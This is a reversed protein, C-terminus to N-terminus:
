FVITAGLTYTRCHPYSGQDIGMATSSGGGINVEPDYGRYKTWTVLNEASFYFTVKQMLAKRTISNPLTYAFRLNKLKLYSGDEIFRSSVPPYKDKEARPVTTYDGPNRWRMLTRDSQNRADFMGETFMRTANFVDNGYSGQFFISFEFNRWSLSNNIGYLLKPQACGIIQRDEDASLDEEYVIMGNVKEYMMRGNEPDVGVANYGYFSGLPEGERVISATGSIKKDLWGTFIEPSGAMNTVKNRNFSLNVDTTWVLPGTLNRSSIQFEMGKNVVNGINQMGSDFGTSQPLNVMLLLDSTKKYYFDATFNIRGNLVSFDVGIDTQSTREWRLKDNGLQSQYYGTLIVDDANYNAGLGYIGYSSYCGVQDNGVQGWGVRLKLDNIWDVNDMFKESSIRWGLSFSPFYGWRNNKSFKSSGDARFNVTALYRGAYDYTVRGLWSVNSSANYTEWPKDLVTGADLTQIKTDTFGRTSAGMSRGGWHSVVFGAMATVAHDGFEKDFMLLEENQWKFNLSTNSEAKGQENRGYNSKFPDLFAKYYSFNMDIAISARLKLWDTFKIDGYVNGMLKHQTWKHNDSEIDSLPNELSSLFPLTPFTGDENYLPVCSPTTIAKLIVSESSGDGIDRDDIKSYAIHSSIDFWKFVKQDLNVKFNLRQFDNGKVVGTNRVFGGSVYYLTNDTGGSVSLQYNQMTGTRFVEDQWDIDANFVNRDYEPYGLDTLLDCFQADNLVKYKKQVQSWGGYVNLSVQAKGKKGQKTTILVVGNAGANGYIAASSADKLVTITEIESPSITKTDSTPVGDVVYLPENGANISTAGRIRMSFGENPKGNASIVQVGPARGALASGFDNVPINEIDSSEITSVSGTIDKKKQSSYGVVVMENLNTIDEAMAVDLKSAGSLQRTTPAYGVYTFTLASRNEPVQITYNGDLDTVAAEKSDKVRVTAGILPEGEKDTVRGSVKRTTKQGSTSGPGTKAAPTVRVTKGKVEVEVKQGHFIKSLVEKVPRNVAHVNVKARTNVQNSPLTFTYGYNKTLQELAQGITVNQVNLTVVPNDTQARAPLTALLLAAVISMLIGFPTRHSTTM